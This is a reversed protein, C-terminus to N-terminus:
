IRTDMKNMEEESMGFYDKLHVAGWAAWHLALRYDVLNDYNKFPWIIQKVTNYENKFAHLADGNLQPLIRKRNIAGVCMKEREYDM